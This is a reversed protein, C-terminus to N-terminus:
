AARERLHAEIEDRTLLGVMVGDGTTVVVSELGHDRMYELPGDLSADPRFTKAEPEMVEAVTEETRALSSAHRVLGQFVNRNNVALCGGDGDGGSRERATVVREDPRCTPVKAQAVSGATPENAEQGAM